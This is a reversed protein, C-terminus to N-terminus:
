LSPTAMKESLNLQNSTSVTSTAANLMCIRSLRVLRTTLVIPVPKFSSIKLAVSRLRADLNILIEREVKMDWNAAVVVKM